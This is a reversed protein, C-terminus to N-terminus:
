SRTRRRPRPWAIMSDKKAWFVRSHRRAMRSTAYLYDEVRIVAKTADLVRFFTVANM